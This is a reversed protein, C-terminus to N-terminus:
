DRAHCVLILNAPIKVKQVIDWGAATVLAQYQEANFENVWGEGRRWAIEKATPVNQITPSYSFIASRGVKRCQSVAWSPDKLFQFVGLMAVWDYDGEPFEGANLDAVLCGPCRSYLDCPQYRCGPRLFEKLVMSGAGLDLVSSGKPIMYGAMRARLPNRLGWTNSCDRWRDYDTPDEMALYM